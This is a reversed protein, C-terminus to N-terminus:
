QSNHHPISFVISKDSSEEDIKTANKDFEVYRWEFM